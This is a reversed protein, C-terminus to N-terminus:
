KGPRRELRGVAAKADQTRASLPSGKALAELVRLAEPTGVRELVAIARLHRLDDPDWEPKKIGALLENVRSRVEASPKKELAERLFPEAVTGLRRLGKSATQRVAFEEDDLERILRAIGERTAGEAATLRGKLHAVAKEGGAALSWGARTAKRADRDALDSWLRALE